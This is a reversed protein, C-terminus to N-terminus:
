HLVLARGLHSRHFPMSCRSYSPSRHDCALTRVLRLQYEGDAVIAPETRPDGRGSWKNLLFRARDERELSPGPIGNPTDRHRVIEWCHRQHALSRALRLTMGPASLRRCKRRVWALWKTSVVRKRAPSIRFTCARNGGSCLAKEERGGVDPAAANRHGPRNDFPGCAIWGSPRTPSARCGFRNGPGAFHGAPEPTAFAVDRSSSFCWGIARAYRVLRM